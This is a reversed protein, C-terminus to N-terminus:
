TRLHTLALEVPATQAVENLLQLKRLSEQVDKRLVAGVIVMSAKSQVVPIVTPAYFRRVATAGPASVSTGATSPMEFRGSRRGEESRQRALLGQREDPAGLSEEPAHAPLPTPLQDVLQVGPGSDAADLGNDGVVVYIGNSSHNDVGHQAAETAELLDM